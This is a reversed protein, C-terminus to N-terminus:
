QKAGGITTDYHITVSDDMAAPIYGGIRSNLGLYTHWDLQICPKLLVLEMETEAPILQRMRELFAEMDQQKQFTGRPLLLFFRYPNKGYLRRYLAPNCCAPDNPDVAFYEIVWPNRGTLRRVTRRVGAVTYMTEYEDLIRPLRGRLDEEGKEPEMCLWRALFEAMGDDAGAPDLQRPLADLGAELEQFMTNFISLYRRTFDQGRYIAPLYDVMHDGEMWLSVADIGPRRSGGATLEVALWLFRGKAQLLLDTQAVPQGFLKQLADPRLPRGRLAEWEPWPAQDSARAYVRVAAERPVRATLKLRGWQFGAESSDVPPLCAAGAFAGDELCLADGSYTIHDFIGGQWQESCCLTLYKQTDSM